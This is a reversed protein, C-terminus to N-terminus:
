ISVNKNKTPYMTIKKILKYPLNEEQYTMYNLVNKEYQKPWILSSIETMNIFFM